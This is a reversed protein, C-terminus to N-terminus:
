VMTQAVFSHMIIGSATGVNLSRVSGTMPIYVTRDCLSLAEESLGRKEEGYVMITDRSWLFKDLPEAGIVNDIAVWEYSLLSEPCQEPNWLFEQVIAWSEFYRITEYHYTGVAGRKDWQKKGVFWIEQGCFANHNRCGSAKNFDGSLNEFVSIFNHRRPALAQRIEDVDMGKFEDQVNWSQDRFDNM